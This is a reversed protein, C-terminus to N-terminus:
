DDTAAAEQLVTDLEAVRGHLLRTLAAGRALMERGDTAEWVRREEERDAIPVPLDDGALTQDAVVKLLGAKTGFQAYITQVSLGAHEAIATLPTAGYGREIFLERAADVVARRTARAAEERLPSRYQRKVPEAIHM